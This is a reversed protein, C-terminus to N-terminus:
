WPWRNVRVEVSAPSGPEVKVSAAMPVIAALVDTVPLGRADTRDFAVVYYDGPAVNEFEFAGDRGCSTERYDVMGREEKPVLVARAGEGHEAVGRVKGADQKVIVQLLAGPGLEVIQGDVDRGDLLVQEIRFAARMLPAASISYRGPFIGDIWDAQNAPAPNPRPQAEMPTLWIMDPPRQAFHPDALAEIDMGVQVAFPGRLRVEVDDLDKEAVPAAAVGGLPMDGDVGAQASMRWDGQRVDPFEFRGDEGSEVRALEPELSPVNLHDNSIVSGIRGTLFSGEKGSRGLLKVTAHAVPKGAQDLVVGSVRHVPVSKLRIVMGSAEAGNRVLVPVADALETASPYYIPVTGLKVGEEVRTKQEPKAMVTYLGPALSPFAFEGNEDTDMENDLKQSIEVRVNAAPKGDEGIVRGRLGGWPQLRADTHVAADGTIHLGGSWSNSFGYRTFVGAYDNEGLGTIQYMGDSDTLTEYPKGQRDVLRLHVRDVGEGTLSNTVRGEVSGAFVPACLVVAFCLGRLRTVPAM